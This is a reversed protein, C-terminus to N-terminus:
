RREPTPGLSHSTRISDEQNSGPTSIVLRRCSRRLSPTICDAPAHGSMSGSLSHSRASPFDQTRIRVAVTGGEKPSAGSSRRLAGPNACYFDELLSPDALYSAPVWSRDEPGYGEWNLLFQLSLDKALLMVKQGPQYSPAPIRHRNASRRMRESAKVLATRAARWVRQCRKIHARTSPVGIELEQQPFMPPQYGLSCEFPSMGTASSKM